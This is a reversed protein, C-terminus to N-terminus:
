RLVRYSTFFKLVGNPDEAQTRSGAIQAADDIVRIITPDAGPPTKLTTERAYPTLVHDLIEGLLPMSVTAFFSSLLTLVFGLFMMRAHPKTFRLLRAFSKTMPPLPAEPELEAEETDDADEGDPGALKLKEIQQVLKHIAVAKGVTYRWVHTHGDTARVKLLGIAGHENATVSEVQSWFLTVPAAHAPSVGWLRRDTVALCGPSFQLSEDLDLEVWLRAAEGPEFQELLM